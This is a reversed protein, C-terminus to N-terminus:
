WLGFFLDSFEEVIRSVIDLADVTEGTMLEAKTKNGRYGKETATSASESGNEIKRYDTLYTEENVGSLQGQPTDSYKDESHGTGESEGTSVMDINNFLDSYHLNGYVDRTKEITDIMINYKDMIESLRTQVKLRWLAYTEFAIERTYYYMLFFTEIRDKWEQNYYDWSFNFINPRAAEIIEDVSAVNLEDPTMGSKMECIWRVETTYKSMLFVGKRIVKM